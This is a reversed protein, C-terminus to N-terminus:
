IVEFLLYSLLEAIELDEKNRNDKAKTIQNISINFGVSGKKTKRSTLKLITQQSENTKVAERDTYFVYVM